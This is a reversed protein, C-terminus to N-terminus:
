LGGGFAGFYKRNAAAYAAAADMKDSFVGLYIQRGNVKLRADWKGLSKNLSVGRIGSTSNRQSGIRNSLNKSNDCVRLNKRQCDLTNHNEHDVLWKPNGCIFRHLYQFTQKGNADRGIRRKAYFNKTTKSWTACWKFKSASEFDEDDVIAVQGQSLQLTKM